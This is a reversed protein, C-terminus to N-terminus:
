HKRIQMFTAILPRVLVAKWDPLRCYCVIVTEPCHSRKDTLLVAVDICLGCESVAVALAAADDKQRLINFSIAPRPSSSKSVRITM